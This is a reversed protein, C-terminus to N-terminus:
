QAQIDKSSTKMYKKRTSVFFLVSSSVAIYSSIMVGKLMQYNNIDRVLINSPSVDSAIKEFFAIELVRCFPASEGMLSFVDAPEIWTSSFTACNAYRKIHLTLRHM